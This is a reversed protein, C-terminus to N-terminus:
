RKLQLKLDHCTEELRKCSQNKNELENELDSIRQCAKEWEHNTELHKEIQSGTDGKSQKMTDMESDLNEVIDKSEQIQIRFCEGKVIEPQLREELDLISLNKNAEMQCSNNNISLPSIMPLYSKDQRFVSLKNREASHYAWGSDVESESRSEDWDLRSMIADKMSSVDQLSFCHNIVWELNSAVLQAFHELDTTGNLLDNCTRVFEQLVASLEATKWQFVRVMYGTPNESTKYSLLKDDSSTEGVGKDQSHINIGELLEVVKHISVSVNSVRNSINNGNRTDSSDLNMTKNTSTQIVLGSGAPYDASVVALKEMEAFDDMLNIDSTTMNRHSPTGLQKENKIHELESILASAWSEACSAKDDSGVDSSHEQLFCLHKGPKEETTQGKLSEELQGEARSLRSATRAHVTRSFELEGSKKNLADKLARNEEELEICFEMSSSPSPDSKKRRTEVQDKGLMEIESKMKTLAAPGPSRKRVLLRLRQCETELKAIKKVSEMQQKRAVDATRRNFEREENRIDVEKELVRVEYKLSTNEKETSELRLRLANFDADVQTRHKSLDEIMKEKLSIVKNLRTNEVDLKGLKKGAEAFKEDLAIRIKEFEESTKLVAGHVRKDQEERVFRLQQMCEKLAADLQGIREESASKQQLVKELEQKLSVAETEAKEWGAIAEEAIKMQKKAIDDKANCESVASSLKENLIQLDRQLDTKETLLNQVEIVEEESKRSSNSAKDAVLTKETSRKKWIWSKQDM